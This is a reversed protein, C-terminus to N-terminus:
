VIDATDSIATDSIATDSIAIDSIVIGSITTDSSAIDSIVIGSVTTDSSAIDSIVIGSITTDSSAIDSSTTAGGIGSTKNYESVTHEDGPVLDRDVEQLSTAMSTIWPHRLAEEASLRNRPLPKLLGEIFARGEGSWKELMKRDNCCPAFPYQKTALFYVIIGLSWMDMAGPYEQCPAVLEQVEPALYYWTGRWLTLNWEGEPPIRKSIGFDAIKVSW